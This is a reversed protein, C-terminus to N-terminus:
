GQPAVVHTGRLLSPPCGVGSFVLYAFGVRGGGLGGFYLTSFKLFDRPLMTDPPFPPDLTSLDKRHNHLFDGGPAAARGVLVLDLHLESFKQRATSYRAPGIKEVNIPLGKTRASRWTKAASRNREAVSAGTRVNLGHTTANGVFVLQPGYGHRRPGVCHVPLPDGPVAWFRCSVPRYLSPPTARPAPCGSGLSPGPLWHM